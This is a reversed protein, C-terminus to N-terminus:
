SLEAAEAHLERSIGDWPGANAPFVLLVNVSAMFSLQEPMVFTNSSL